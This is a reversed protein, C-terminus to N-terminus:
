CLVLKKLDYEAQLDVRKVIEGASLIMPIAVASEKRNKVFLAQFSTPFRHFLDRLNHFIHEPTVKSRLSSQFIASESDLADELPAEVLMVIYAGAENARELERIFRSYNSDGARTERDSLTGFFDSLSKREIYIGKDHKPELGYDGCNLKLSITRGKLKIPAQERTDVIISGEIPKTNQPFNQDFVLEYGLDKCVKSYGGEFTSNYYPASPCLLSRLETQCPAYVLSKKEKRQKLWDIAWVKAEQPNNKFWKKLSDKDVFEKKLYDAAPAKFPIPLGTGKDIVPAYETYYKEQTIKLSRLYKHLAELSEHESNDVKCVFPM